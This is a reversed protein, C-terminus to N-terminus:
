TSGKLRFMTCSSCCKLALKKKLHLFNVTLHKEEQESWGQWSQILLASRSRFKLKPFPAGVAPIANGWLTCNTSFPYHLDASSNLHRQSETMDRKIKIAKSCFANGKRAWCKCVRSFAKASEFGQCNRNELKQEWRRPALLSSKNALYSPKEGGAQPLTPIRSRSTCLLKETTHHACFKIVLSHDRASFTRKLSSLFFAVLLRLLTSPM